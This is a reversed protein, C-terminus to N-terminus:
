RNEINHQEVQGANARREAEGKGSHLEQLIPSEGGMEPQILLGIGFLPNHSSGDHVVKGLLIYCGIRHGIGPSVRKTSVIANISPWKKILTTLDWGISFAPEGSKVRPLVHQFTM